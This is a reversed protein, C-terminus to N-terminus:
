YEINDKDLKETDGWSVHIFTIYLFMCFSGPFSQNKGDSLTVSTKMCKRYSSSISSLSNDTLPIAWAFAHHPSLTSEQTRENSQIM